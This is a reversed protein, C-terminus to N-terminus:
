PHISRSVSPKTLGHFGVFRPASRAIELRGVPFDGQLSLGNLQTKYARRMCLAMFQIVADSENRTLAGSRTHRGAQCRHRGCRTKKGDESCVDSEEAKATNVGADRGARCKKRRKEM